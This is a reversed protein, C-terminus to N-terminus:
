IGNRMSDKFHIKGFLFNPFFFNSSSRMCCQLSKIMNRILRERELYINQKVFNSDYWMCKKWRKKGNVAVSIANVQIM